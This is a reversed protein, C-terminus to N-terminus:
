VDVRSKSLLEERKLKLMTEAMDVAAETSVAGGVTIQVFSGDEFDYRALYRYPPRENM